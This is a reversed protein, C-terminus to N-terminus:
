EFRQPSPLGIIRGCRPAVVISIVNTPIGRIKMRIEIKSIDRPIHIYLVAAV